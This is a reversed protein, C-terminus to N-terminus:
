APSTNLHLPDSRIQGVHHAGIPSRNDASHDAGSRDHRSEYGRDSFPEFVYAARKHELGGVPM